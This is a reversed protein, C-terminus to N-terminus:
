EEGYARLITASDRELFHLLCGWMRKYTMARIVTVAARTDIEMTLCRGHIKVQTTVPIATPKNVPYIHKLELSDEENDETREMQYTTQPKPQAKM